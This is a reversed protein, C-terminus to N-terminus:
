ARLAASLPVTQTRIHGGPREITAETSVVSWLPLSRASISADPVTRRVTLVM